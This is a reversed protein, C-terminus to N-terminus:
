EQNGAAPRRPELAQKLLSVRSCDREIQDDTWDPHSVRLAKRVVRVTSAIHQGGAVWMVRADDPQKPMM